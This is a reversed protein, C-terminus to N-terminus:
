AVSSIAHPACTCLWLILVASPPVESYSYLGTGHSIFALSSSRKKEAVFSFVPANSYAVLYPYNGRDATNVTYGFPYCFFGACLGYSVGETARLEAAVMLIRLINECPKYVMRIRRCNEDEAKSALVIIYGLKFLM